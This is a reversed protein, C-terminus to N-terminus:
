IQGAGTADADHGSGHPQQSEYYDLNNNRGSQKNNFLPPLFYRGGKNKNKKHDAGVLSDDGNHNNNAQSTSQMHIIENLIKPLTIKVFNSVLHGQLGHGDCVGLMWLNNIGSFDKHIIYSDQNTKKQGPIFGQRTKVAFAIVPSKNVSTIMKQSQNM